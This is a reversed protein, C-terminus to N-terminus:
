GCRGPIQAFCHPICVVAAGAWATPLAPLRLPRRMSLVPPPTYETTDSETRGWPSHGELSRQGQSKGPLFVPIPLWAMRRPIKGVWPDRANAPANKLVSDEPNFCTFDPCIGLDCALAATSGWTDKPQEETSYTTLVWLVAQSEGFLLRSPLRTPSSVPVRAKNARKWPYSSEGWISSSNEQTTSM